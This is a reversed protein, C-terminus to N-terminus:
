ILTETTAFAVGVKTKFNNPIYKYESEKRYSQIDYGITNFASKNKKKEVLKSESIDHSKFCNSNALENLNILFNNQSGM